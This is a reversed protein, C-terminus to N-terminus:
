TQDSKVNKDNLKENLTKYHGKHIESQQPVPVFGGLEDLDGRFNSDDKPLMSCHQCNVGTM